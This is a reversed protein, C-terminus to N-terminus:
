LVASVHTVRACAPAAPLFLLSLLMPLPLPLLLVADYRTPPHMEPRSYFETSLARLQEM